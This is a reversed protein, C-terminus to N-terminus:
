SAAVVVLQDVDVDQVVASRGDPWAVRVDVRDGSRVPSVWASIPCASRAWRTM